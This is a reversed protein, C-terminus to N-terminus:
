DVCCRKGKNEASYCAGPLEPRSGLGRMSVDLACQKELLKLLPLDARGRQVKECADICQMCQTCTFMKNKSGRPSLRMPCAHECSSDCDICEPVRKRDFAVVMAQRNAMWVLSQFLGIACGFRCFLHRAFAFELSLVVTAVGIFISQNRTLSASFLNGYVEAPPLLYSLFVVAWVFAFLIIAPVTVLWWRGDPEIHTGDCQREPLRKREWLSPKGSARRMLANILEVVSFHPCLWGCYLRGWKWSVFIGGGVVLGIPLFFRSFMNWAMELPGIQGAQYEATGLVWPHGLLIFHNLTLDFRFLDLPPALVFLLFFASRWYLRKTQTPIM